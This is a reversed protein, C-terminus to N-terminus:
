RIINSMKAEGLDVEGLKANTFNVQHLISDEFEARTLNAGTFNVRELNAEEFDARELDTYSLDVDLLYSEEFDARKLNAHTFKVEELNNDEFKVREMQSKIFHAARLNSDKFQTRAMSAGSFNAGVLNCRDFSSRELNVGQLLVGALNCNKFKKKYFNCHRLDTMAQPANCSGQPLDEQNSRVIDRPKKPMQNIDQCLQKFKTPYDQCIRSASSGEAQLIASLLAQQIGALGPESSEGIGNLERNKLSVLYIERSKRISIQYLCDETSIGAQPIAIVPRIYKATYNYTLTSFVEPQIAQPNETILYCTEHSSAFLPTNFLFVTVLSIFCIRLSMIYNM